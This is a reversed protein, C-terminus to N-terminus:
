AGTKPDQGQDQQDSGRRGITLLLNGGALVFELWQQRNGGAVGAALEPGNGCVTRQVEFATLLASDQAKAIVVIPQRATHYHERRNFGVAQGIAVPVAAIGGIIVFTAELEVPFGVACDPKAM